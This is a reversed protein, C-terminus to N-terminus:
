GNDRKRGVFRYYPVRMLPLYPVKGVSEVLEVTELRSQLYPIHDASLHVNDTGFWTPWFHRTFWSHKKLGAAPFKRSTYFDVVGLIGGPQLIHCAQDIAAFWDPIMTLSYSCTVVDVPGDPPVFTTADAACCTVNNWRREAARRRAVALLSPSLDVLWVQGLKNLRAGLCDLNAGTGGGLDVWRAGHAAPVSRYLEERGHLLRRRFDDYDGAQRGYFSELREAHSDGRVPSLTMHYLTKLDATLSM